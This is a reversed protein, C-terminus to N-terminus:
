EKLSPIPPIFPISPPPAARQQSEGPTNTGIPWPIPPAVVGYIPQTVENQRRQLAILLNIQESLEELKESQYQEEPVEQNHIKAPVIQGFNKLFPSYTKDKRAAEYTSRLKGRLEEKFDVIKSYRLSKPYTVHEIPSTDFSYETKDDKIIITAKDFALRMGLEFMVNANKGSVDCVVIERNYLNQIITKQIVSIEATASVLRPEFGAAKIAEDLINVVDRWHQESYDPLMASIPRIIGCVPKEKEPLSKDNNQGGANHQTKEEPM